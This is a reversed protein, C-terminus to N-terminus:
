AEIVRRGSRSLGTTSDGGSADDGGLRWTLRLGGLVVGAATLAM